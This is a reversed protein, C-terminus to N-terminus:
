FYRAHKPDIQVFMDALVRNLRMHVMIGKSSIDANLFAGLIDMVTVFKGECAAIAAVALVSTTSATPSSLCLDEYLKRNQQDGVVVLRAKLKDYEGFDTFNEKLFMSCRIVKDRENRALDSVIVGHWVYKEMM